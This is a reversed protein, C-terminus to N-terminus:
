QSLNQFSGVTYLQEVAKLCLAFDNIIKCAVSYLTKTQNLRTEKKLKIAQYCNVLAIIKRYVTEVKQFKVGTRITEFYDSEKIAISFPYVPRHTRSRILFLVEQRPM